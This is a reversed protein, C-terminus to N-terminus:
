LITPMFQCSRTIYPKQKGANTYILLKIQLVTMNTTGGEMPCHGQFLNFQFRGAYEGVGDDELSGLGM